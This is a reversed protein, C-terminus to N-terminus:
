HRGAELEKKKTELAIFSERMADKSTTEAYYTTLCKNSVVLRDGKEITDAIFVNDLEKM